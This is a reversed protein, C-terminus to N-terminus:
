TVKHDHLETREIISTTTVRVNRTGIVEPGGLM